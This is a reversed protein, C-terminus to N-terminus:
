SPGSGCGCPGGSPNFEYPNPLADTTCYCKGLNQETVIEAMQTNPQTRLLTTGNAIGTAVQTAFAALAKAQRRKTLLSSDFNRLTM